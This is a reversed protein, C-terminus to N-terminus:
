STVEFEVVPYGAEAWGGFSGGKLSLVDEWGMAGLATMAITCRWGGGCYTVIPTDSSPMLDLNQGPERLPIHVAGEIYGKDELEENQRVDL